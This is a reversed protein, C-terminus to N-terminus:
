PRSSKGVIPPLSLLPIGGSIFCWGPSSNALQALARAQRPPSTCSVLRAPMVPLLHSWVLKPVHRQFRQHAQVLCLQERGASALPRCPPVLPMCVYHLLLYSKFRMSVQLRAMWDSEDDGPTDM